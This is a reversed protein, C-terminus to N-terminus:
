NLSVDQGSFIQPPFDTFRPAPFAVPQFYLAEAPGNAGSQWRGHGMKRNIEGTQQNM